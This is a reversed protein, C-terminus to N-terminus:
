SEPNVFFQNILAKISPSIMQFAEEKEPSIDNEDISMFCLIPLPIGLNKAIIKLTSLNPEKNNSEIQSLYAQTINCIKAFENQKFGKQKRVSKIAKGLNM